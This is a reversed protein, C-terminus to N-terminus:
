GNFHDFAYELSIKDRKELKIGNYQLSEGDITLEVSNLGVASPINSITLKNGEVTYDASGEFFKADEGNINEQNFYAIDLKNGNSFSFAYAMKDEEEYFYWCNDKLFAPTSDETAAETTATETAAATTDTAGAKTTSEGQQTVSTEAASTSEQEPKAKCGAFVTGILVVALIITVIRKNM